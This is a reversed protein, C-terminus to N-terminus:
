LFFITPLNSGLPKAFLLMFPRTMGSSFKIEGRIELHSASPSLGLGQINFTTEPKLALRQALLRSLDLSANVTHLVLRDQPAQTLVLAAPQNAENLRYFSKIQTMAHAIEFRREPGLPTTLIQECSQTQLSALAVTLLESSTRVTKGDQQYLDARSILLTDAQAFGESFEVHPFRQERLQLLSQLAVREPETLACPNFINLCINLREPLRDWVERFALEATGGANNITHGIKGAFSLSPGLCGWLVTIAVSYIIRKTM